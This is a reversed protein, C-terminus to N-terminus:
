STKQILAIITAQVILMSANMTEVDKNREVITMPEVNKHDANIIWAFVNEMKAHKSAATPSVAQMDLVTQNIANMAQRTVSSMPHAISLQLVDLQNVTKNFVNTPKDLQSNTQAISTSEVSKRWVNQQKVSKRKTAIHRILVNSQFVNSHVATKRQKVIAMDKAILKFVHTQFSAKPSTHDMKIETQTKALVSKTLLAISKPEAHSQNANM